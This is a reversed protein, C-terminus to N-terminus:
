DDWDLLKTRFMEWLINWAKIFRLRQADCWFNHGDCDPGTFRERNRFNVYRSFHESDFCPENGEDRRYESEGGYDLIVEMLRIAREMQDAYVSGDAIYSWERMYEAMMGLKVKMVSM